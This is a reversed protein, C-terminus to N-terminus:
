KDLYSCCYNVLKKIEVKFSSNKPVYFSMGEKITEWNKSDRLQLKMEGSLIEMYEKKETSFEYNGPLMVGLTKISGDSLSINRSVVNGEFYINAIKKVDVNKFENM